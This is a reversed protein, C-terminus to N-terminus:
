FDFIFLQKGLHKMCVISLKITQSIIDMRRQGQRLIDHKTKRLRFWVKNVSNCQGSINQDNIRLRNRRILACSCGPHGCALCVDSERRDERLCGSGEQWLEWLDSGMGNRTTLIGLSLTIIMIRKLASVRDGGKFSIISAVCVFRPAWRLAIGWKESTRECYPPQSMASQATLWGSKLKVTDMLTFLLPPSKCTTTTSVNPRLSAAQRYYKEAAENLSAQRCLSFLSLCENSMKIAEPKLRLRSGQTYVPVWPDSPVYCHLVAHLILFASGLAKLNPTWYCGEGSLM